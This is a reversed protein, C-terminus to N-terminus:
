ASGTRTLTVIPTVLTVTSAGPSFMDAARVIRVTITVPTDAPASITGTMFLPANNSWETPTLTPTYPQSWTGGIIEGNYLIYAYVRVPILASTTVDGSVTVLATRAKPVSSFTVDSNTRPFPESTSSGTASINSLQVSETSRSYVEELNGSMVALQGETFRSWNSVSSEFQAVAKEQIKIVGEVSRGWATARGPLDSPPFIDAM